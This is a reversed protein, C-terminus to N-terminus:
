FWPEEVTRRTSLLGLNRHSGKRFLDEKEPKTDHHKMIHGEFVGFM